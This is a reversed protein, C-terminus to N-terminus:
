QLILEHKKLFERFENESENWAKKQELKVSRSIEVIEDYNSEIKTMKQELEDLSDIMNWSNDYNFLDAFMKLKNDINITIFPRGLLSAYVAGHFRSTILIKSSALKTLFSQYSYKSSDWKIVNVGKDTLIKETKCDHNTSFLYYTVEYVSISLRDILGNINQYYLGNDFEWDRLVVGLSKKNTSLNDKLIPMNGYFCLDPVEKCPVNWKDCYSKSTVDRIMVLEAKHYFAKAMSEKEQDIFPGVGQGVIAELHKIPKKFRLKFHNKILDFKDRSRLLYIVKNVFTLRFFSFFQTGGGYFVLDYKIAPEHKKVQFYQCAEHPLDVYLELDKSKINNKLLEISKLLLADDGFNNKGYYGKIWVNIM